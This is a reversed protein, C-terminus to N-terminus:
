LRSLWARYSRKFGVCLPSLAASAFAFVVSSHLPAGSLLAEGNRKRRQRVGAFVRVKGPSQCRPFPVFGGAGDRVKRPLVRPAGFVSWVCFRRERLLPFKGLFHRFRGGSQRRSRRGACFLVVFFIVFKRPHERRKKLTIVLVANKRDQSSKRPAQFSPFYNTTYNLM